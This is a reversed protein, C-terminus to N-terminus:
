IRKMVEKERAETVAKAQVIAEISPLNDASPAATDRQKIKIWAKVKKVFNIAGKVTAAVICFWFEYVTTYYAIYVLNSIYAWEESEKYYNIPYLANKPWYELLLRTKDTYYVFITYTLAGPVGSILGLYLLTTFERIPKNDIPFGFVVRILNFLACLLAAIIVFIPWVNTCHCKSSDFVGGKAVYQKAAVECHAIERMVPSLRSNSELHWADILEAESVNVNPSPIKCGFNLVGIKVKKPWSSPCGDDRIFTQGVFIRTVIMICFVLVFLRLLKLFQQLM